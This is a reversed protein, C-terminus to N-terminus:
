EETKEEKETEAQEEEEEPADKGLEVCAIPREDWQQQEKIYKDGFLESMTEDDLGLDVKIKYMNPYALFLTLVLLLTLMILITNGSLLVLACEVAVSALTAMYLGCMNNAYLKLKQDVDDLQRIKPTYRRITALAICTVLVALVAGAILLIKANQADIGTVRWKSFDNFAILAAVIAISAYLGVLSSVKIKKIQKKRNETNGMTM